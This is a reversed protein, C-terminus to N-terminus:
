FVAESLVGIKPNTQPKTNDRTVPNNDRTIFINVRTRNQNVRTRNQNDRTGSQNVRTTYINVRALQRLNSQEAEIRNQRSMKRQIVDPVTDRQKVIPVLKM